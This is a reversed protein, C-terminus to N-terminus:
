VRLIVSSLRSLSKCVNVRIKNQSSFRLRFPMLFHSLVKTQVGSFWHRDNLIKKITFLQCNNSFKRIMKLQKCWVESDTRMWAACSLETFLLDRRRRNLQGTWVNQCQHTSKLQQVSGSRALNIIIKSEFLGRTQASPPIYGIYAIPRSVNYLLGGPFSGTSWIALGGSGPPITTTSVRDGIDGLSTGIPRVPASCRDLTHFRWGPRM